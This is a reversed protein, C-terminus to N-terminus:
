DPSLVPRSSTTAANCPDPIVAAFKEPTLMPGFTINATTPGCGAGGIIAEGSCHAKAKGTGSAFILSVIAISVASCFFM